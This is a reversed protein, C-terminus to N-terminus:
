ARDKRRWPRWSRRQRNGTQTGQQASLREYATMQQSILDVTVNTYNVGGTENSASPPAGEPTGAEARQQITQEIRARLEEANWPKTLYADAGFRLAQAAVEADVVATLMIICAVPLLPRLRRLAELGSMEPMRVDLLVLEFSSDDGVTALAAQASSVSTPRYGLERLESTLAKGLSNSSEAKYNM